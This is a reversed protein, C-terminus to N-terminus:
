FKFGWFSRNFVIDYLDYALAAAALVPVARGGFKVMRTASRIQRKSPLASGLFYQKLFNAPKLMYEARAWRSQGAIALVDKAASVKGSLRSAGLYPAAGFLLNPTLQLARMGLWEFAEPSLHKPKRAYMDHKTKSQIGVYWPTFHSKGFSGVALAMPYRM